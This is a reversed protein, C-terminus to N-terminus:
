YIKKIKTDTYYHTLIKKYYEKDKKSAKLAMGRAGWQSLGLGHGWGSGKIFVKEGKVGTLVRTDSTVGFSGAGKSTGTKIPIKKRGIEQGFSNLIPVEISDPRSFGVYIDFLTSNLQLINRLKTGEIVATGKNGRFTIKKVRGSVGRDAAKMPPKALASVRISELKGIKYGSQELIRQLQAPEYTKDWNYQPSEKDYDVVAQLYPVPNGWVNAASETYGGSSSHFFAEIPKGNYTVVQGRTADVMKNTNAHEAKIGGYVQGMDNARVDFGEYSSNNVQYLAFSRAAVVQAKVAEEPWLPIIEKAIVGYLYKEVPLTNIVSLTKKDNNLQVTLSGRYTKWNLNLPNKADDAKLYLRTGGVKKDDVYLVGKKVSVFHKGPKLTLKKNGSVVIKGTSDVQASFQKVVLGVRIDPEDSAWALPMMMFLCLLVLFIKKLM